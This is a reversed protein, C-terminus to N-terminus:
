TPAEEEEDEVPRSETEVATSGSEGEAAAIATSSSSSPRPPPTSYDEKVRPNATRTRKKFMESLRRGYIPLVLRPIPYKLGPHSTHEVTPPDDLNHNHVCVVVVVIGSRPEYKDPGLIFIRFTSSPPLSEAKFMKFKGNMITTAVSQRDHTLALCSM